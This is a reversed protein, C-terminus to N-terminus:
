EAMKTFGLSLLKTRTMELDRLNTVHDAGSSVFAHASGVITVKRRLIAIHTFVHASCVIPLFPNKSTANNINNRM